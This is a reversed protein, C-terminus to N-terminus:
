LLIRCSNSLIISNSWGSNAVTILEKLCCDDISTFVQSYFYLSFCLMKMCGLRGIENINIAFFFIIPVKCYPFMFPVVQLFHGAIGMVPCISKRAKHKSANLLVWYWRRTNRGATHLKFRFRLFCWVLPPPQSDVFYSDQKSWFCTPCPLCLFMLTWALDFSCLSM